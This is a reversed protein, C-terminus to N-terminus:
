QEYLKFKQICMYREAKDLPYIFGVSTPSTKEEIGHANWARKDKYLMQLQRKSFAWVYERNGILYIWTNDKRMIGSPSYEPLSPDSKEAVEFYLNNTTKVKNDFKIEYGGASEGRDRQYRQSSYIQIIIGYKKRLQDSVFDEYEKGQLLHERYAETMGYEGM